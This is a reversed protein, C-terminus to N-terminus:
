CQEDFRAEPHSCCPCWNRDTHRVTCDGTENQDVKLAFRKSRSTSLNFEAATQTGKQLTEGDRNPSLRCLDDSILCIPQTPAPEGEMRCPIANAQYYVLINDITRHEDFRIAQL